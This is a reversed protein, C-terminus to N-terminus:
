HGSATKVLQAAYEILWIKPALWIELWDLHTAFVLASIVMGVLAASILLVAYNGQDFDYSHSKPLAGRTATFIKRLIFPVAVFGILGGLCLALSVAFNYVLLQHLVDPIQAALFSTAQDLGSSVKDILLALAKNANDSFKQSLDTAVASAASAAQAANM